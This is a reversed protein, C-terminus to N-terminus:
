ADQQVTGKVFSFFIMTKMGSKALTADNEVSVLNPMTPFAALERTLFLNDTNNKELKANSSPM